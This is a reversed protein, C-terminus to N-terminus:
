KPSLECVHAGHSEELQIEKLASMIGALVAQRPSPIQIDPPMPKKEPVESVTGRTLEELISAAGKQGEIEKALLAAERSWGKANWQEFYLGFHQRLYGKNQRKAWRYGAQYADSQAVMEDYRVSNLEEKFGWQNLMEEADQCEPEPKEKSCFYFAVQSAIALIIRHDPEKLIKTNIYSLTQFPRKFTQRLICKDLFGDDAILQFDDQELINDRLEAPLRKVVIELYPLLRSDLHQFKENLTKM